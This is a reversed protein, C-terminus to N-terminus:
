KRYGYEELFKLFTKDDMSRWAIERELIFSRKSEYAMDSCFSSLVWGLSTRGSSKFAQNVRSNNDLFALYALYIKPDM